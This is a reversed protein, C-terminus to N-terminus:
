CSKTKTPKQFAAVGQKRKKYSDFSMKVRVLEEFLVDVLVILEVLRTRDHQPYVNELRDQALSRVKALELRFARDDANNSM